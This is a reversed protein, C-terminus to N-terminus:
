SNCNQSGDSHPIQIIFTTGQKPQSSIDITGSLKAILEMSLKIGLGTGSEGNIGPKSKVPQMGLIAELIEKDIGTGYDRIILRYSGNLYESFLEIRSNDPSYKVSNSLVNRLVTQIINRDTCIVSEPDIQCDIAINRGQILPHLESVMNKVMVAPKFESPEIRTKNQQSLAWELLNLLMYKLNSASAQLGKLYYKLEERSISDLSHSISAALNSFASVNNKLDHAIISFLKDKTSNIEKLQTNLATLEAQNRKRILYRGYLAFLLILSIALIGIIFLIQQKGKQLELQQLSREQNLIALEKEREQTEYRVQFDLLQERTRETVSSDRLAIYTQYHQLASKYNGSEEYLKSLEQHNKELMNRFSIADAIELSQHYYERAQSILGKKFANYALHNLVIAESPKVNYSRFIQLAENLYEEAKTFEGKMTYIEGIMDLRYGKGIINNQAIEIDLAETLLKLAEDALNQNKYISAISALRVAVMGPQNEERAIELSRGFFELAKEFEKCLEYAKGISNLSVALNLRNGLAEDIQYVMNFYRIAEEYNGIYIHNNGILSYCDGVLIDLGAKSFNDAARQAMTVSEKRRGSAALIDASRYYVEGFTYDDIGDEHSKNDIWENLLSLGEEFKKIKKLSDVKVFM